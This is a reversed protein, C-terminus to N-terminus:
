VEAVTYVNIGNSPTILMGKRTIKVTKYNSAVSDRLLRAIKKSSYIFNFEETDCEQDWIIPSETTHELLDKNNDQVKILLNPQSKNGYFAVVEAGMASTVRNLVTVTDADMDFTYFVPDSVRIPCRVNDPNACRFEIKTRKSKLILQVVKAGTPDNVYFADYETINDVLALRKKLTSLRTLALPPFEFEEEVEQLIFIGNEISHGRIKKNAFLVHEIDNAEAIDITRKILALTAKSIKNM